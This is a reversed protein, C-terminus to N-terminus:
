HNYDCDPDPVPCDSMCGGDAVYCSDCDYDHGYECDVECLGPQNCWFAPEEGCQMYEFTLEVEYWDDGGPPNDDFEVVLTGGDGEPELLRVEHRAQLVRLTVHSERDPVLMKPSAYVSSECGQCDRNEGPGPWEPDWREGNIWTPEPQEVLSADANNPSYNLRGPAAHDFHRWRAMFNRVLLQSRGDIEARVRLTKEVPHCEAPQGGPEDGVREAKVLFVDGRDNVLYRTETHELQGLPLLTSLSATELRLMPGPQDTTVRVRLLLGDNHVTTRSAWSVQRPDFDDPYVQDRPEFRIAGLLEVSGDADLRALGDWHVPQGRLGPNREEQGWLLKVEYVAVHPPHLKRRCTCLMDQAPQDCHAPGEVECSEGGLDHDAGLCAGGRQECYDRCTGGETVAHFTCVDHSAKCVLGTQFQQECAAMLDAPPMGPEGHPPEHGAREDETPEWKELGDTSRDLDEGPEGPEGAVAPGTSDTDEDELKLDCGYTGMLLAALLVGLKATLGKSNHTGNM